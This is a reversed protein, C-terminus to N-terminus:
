MGDECGLFIEVLTIAIIDERRMAARVLLKRRDSNQTFKPV